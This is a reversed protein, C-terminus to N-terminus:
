ARTCADLDRRSLLKEDGSLYHATIYDCLKSPLNEGAWMYIVTMSELGVLFRKVRFDQVQRDDKIIQGEQMSDQACKTMNDIDKRGNGKDFILMFYCVAKRYPDGYFRRKERLRMASETQWMKAEPTKYTAGTASKRWIANVSPPLGPIDSFTLLHGTKIDGVKPLNM